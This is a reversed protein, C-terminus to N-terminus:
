RVKAPRPKMGSTSLRAISWPRAGIPPAAPPTRTLTVSFAGLSDVATSGVELTVDGSVTDMTFGAAVGNGKASTAGTENYINAYTDFGPGFMEWTPTFAASTLSVNIGEGALAPIRIMSVAATDAANSSGGPAIRVCPSAALTLDYTGATDLTALVPCEHAELRYGGYENYDYSASTLQFTGSVPAIFWIQSDHGDIGRGDDDSIALPVVAGDANKGWLTLESDVNNTDGHAADPIQAQYFLYAKGKTLSVTRSEYPVRDGSWFDYPNFCSSGNLSGTQTQGPSISGVNCASGYIPSTVTDSGCGAAIAALAFAAATQIIRTTTM